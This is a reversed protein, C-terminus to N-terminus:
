ECVCGSAPPTASFEEQLGSPIHDITCTNGNRLPFSESGGNVRWCPVWCARFQGISMGTSWFRYSSKGFDEEQRSTALWWGVVGRRRGGLTDFVGMGNVLNPDILFGVRSM